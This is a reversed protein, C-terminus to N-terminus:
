VYEAFKAERKKFVYFGILFVAVLIGLSLLHHRLSPITNFILASRSDGIIRAMPNLFMLPAFKAPVASLPYVIPTIWFGLQLLVQWLHHFDRFKLYFASLFFGVGTSLLLLEFVYLPFILAAWGIQASSFIFFISFVALNIVLSLFTTSVVSYIIFKKPFNIKTILNRKNLLSIMSNLTTESFFNWLIIGLLLQLPYYPVQWRAFVSFVLYLVAFMLLPNLLSWLYGLVSNSYRLKFDAVAMERILFYNNGGM